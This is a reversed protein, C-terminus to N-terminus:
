TIKNKIAKIVAESKSNVQLKHYINKIHTKVTDISIFCATAILKYSMGQVLCNLIELERKSLDFNNDTNKKEPKVLDLVRRAVSPSFPVGGEYVDKIAEITKEDSTNKLLYGSAGACIADFIKDDDELVTQMLVQVNPFREKIMRLAQIGSIGPMQIDMLVVDPQTSEIAKIVDRADAFAAVFRLDICSSIIQQLYERILEIDEFIIVRIAM